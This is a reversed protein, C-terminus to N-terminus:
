NYTAKRLFFGVTGLPAFCCRPKIQVATEFLSRHIICYQRADSPGKALPQHGTLMIPGYDLRGGTQQPGTGVTLLDLRPM